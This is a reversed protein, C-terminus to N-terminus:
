VLKEPVRSESCCDRWALQIRELNCRIRDAIDRLRREEREAEYNDIGSIKGLSNRRERVSIKKDLYEMDVRCWELSEEDVMEAYELCLQSFRLTILHRQESAYPIAPLLRRFRDKLDRFHADLCSIYGSFRMTSYIWALFASLENVFFEDQESATIDPVFLMLEDVTDLADDIAHLRSERCSVDTFADRAERRCTQVDDASPKVGSSRMGRFIRANYSLRRDLKDTRSRRRPSNTSSNSSSLLSDSSSSIPSSSHPIPSALASDLEFLSHRHPRSQIAHLMDTQQLQQL